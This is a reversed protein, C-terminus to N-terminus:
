HLALMSQAVANFVLKRESKLNCLLLNILLCLYMCVYRYHIYIYIYMHYVYVSLCISPHLTSPYISPDM